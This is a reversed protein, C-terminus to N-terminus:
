KLCRYEENTSGSQHTVYVTYLTSIKDTQVSYLDVHKCQSKELKIVHEKPGSAPQEAVKHWQFQSRLSSILLCLLEM